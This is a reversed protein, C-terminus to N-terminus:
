SIDPHSSSFTKKFPLLAAEQHVQRCSEILAHITTGGLVLKYIRNRIEPPLSLLKSQTSNAKTSCHSDTILWALSPCPMSVYREGEEWQQADQWEM